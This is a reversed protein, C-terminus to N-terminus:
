RLYIIRQLQRKSGWTLELFYLGSSIETNGDDRGNWPITHIGPEAVDDYLVRVHQGLMNYVVLRAYRPGADDSPISFSVTTETNFPNPYSPYLMLRSPALAEKPVAEERYLDNGIVIALDRIPFRSLEKLRYEVSGTRPLRLSDQTMLDLLDATSGVPPPIIWQFRLVVPADRSTIAEIKWADGSSPRRFDAAYLGPRSEWTRNVFRVILTSDAMPPMFRDMVDWEDSANDHWGLALDSISHGETRASIALLCEGGNRWTPNLWQPLIGTSASDALGSEPVSMVTDASPIVLDAPMDSDLYIWAGEWSDWIQARRLGNREVWLGEIPIGPNETLVDRWAVPYPFPQGVLNWDPELHLAISTDLRTTRGGIVQVVPAATEWSVLAASGLHMPEAERAPVWRQTKADFGSLSGSSLGSLIEERLVDLPGRDRNEVPVALLTRGTGREGSRPWYIGETPTTFSWSKWVDASEPLQYSRRDTSIAWRYFLGSGNLLAPPLDFEIDRGSVLGEITDVESSGPARVALNARVITRDEPMTIRARLAGGEVLSPPAGVWEVAPVITDAVTVFFGTWEAVNPEEADDAARARIVVRRGMPWAGPEFSVAWRRDRRDIALRSLGVPQGDIWLRFSDVALNSFTDSIALHLSTGPHIGRTGPLPNTMRITPPTQDPRYVEITDSSAANGAVDVARVVYLRTSGEEMGDDVFVTDELPVDWSENPLRVVEYFDLDEATVSTWRAVASDGSLEVSAYPAAPPVTDVVTALIEMEGAKLPYRVAVDGLALPVVDIIIRVSDGDDVESFHATADGFATNTPRERPALLRVWPVMIKGTIPTDRQVVGLNLTFHELVADPSIGITVAVPVIAEGRDFGEGTLRLQADFDDRTGSAIRTRVHLTDNARIVAPLEIPLLELPADTQMADITLANDTPNHLTLTVTDGPGATIREVYGECVHHGSLRGDTGEYLTTAGQETITLLDARGDGTIDALAYCTAGELLDRVRHDTAEIEAGVARMASWWAIVEPDTGDFELDRPTGGEARSGPVLAGLPVAYAGEPTGDASLILEPAGDEAPNGVLAVGRSLGRSVDITDRDVPVPVFAVDANRIIHTACAAGAYLLVCAEGPLPARTSTWEIQMGSRDFEVPILVGPDGTCAVAWLARDAVTQPEFVQWHRRKRGDPLDWSAAASVEPAVRSIVMEGGEPPVANTASQTGDPWIVSIGRCNEPVALDVHGDAHDPPFFWHAQVGASTHLLLRAGVANPNGETGRLTIRSTYTRGLGRATVWEESWGNETRLRASSGVVLDLRGDRNLDRVEIPADPSGVWWYRFLYRDSETREIVVVTVSDIRGAISPWGDNTLDAVVATQLPVAADRRFDPDESFLGTGDNMWLSIPAEPHIVILDPGYEGDWDTALLRPSDSTAVPLRMGEELRIISLGMEPDAEAMVVDLRDDGDVDVTLATPQALAMGAWLMISLLAAWGFTFFVGPLRVPLRSRNATHGTRQFAARLQPM